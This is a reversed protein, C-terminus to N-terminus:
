IYAAQRESLDNQMDSFDTTYWLVMLSQSFGSM